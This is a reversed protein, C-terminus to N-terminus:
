LSDLYSNIKQSDKKFEKGVIKKEVNITIQKEPRSEKFKRAAVM